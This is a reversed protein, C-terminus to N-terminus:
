ITKVYQTGYPARQPRSLTANAEPDNTFREAAPDWRVTRNLRMATHAVLCASCSRHGAEVPAVPQKRTRVSTLWDLHHDNRPSAHLHLENDKIGDRVIRPNGADLVQSRAGEAPEGPRYSGRTVWLWGEEGVFKLGNPYLDSIYMDVGNSYTAKVHYSGHVDWLGKKPFQALAAVEV